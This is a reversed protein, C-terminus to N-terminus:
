ICKQIDLHRTSSFQLVEYDGLLTFAVSLNQEDSYRVVAQLQNKKAGSAGVAKTSPSNIKLVGTTLHTNHDLDNIELNTSKGERTSCCPSGATRLFSNLVRRLKSNFVPIVTVKWGLTFNTDSFGKGYWTGPLLFLGKAIQGNPLRKISTIASVTNEFLHQEDRGENYFGVFMEYHERDLDEM